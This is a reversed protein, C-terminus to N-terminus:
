KVESVPFDAEKWGKIGGPCRYVDTYGLKVAWVAGNHSRTCKTFGCYFVITKNKDDGLLQILENKKSDDINTMEPIPFEIQKATPIHNKKYSAEYPMTDVIVIDKKEDLWTKLEEVTVIGYNGRQVERCFSVALAENELEKEGWCFGTSTLVFVGAILCLVIIIAKKGFMKLGGTM